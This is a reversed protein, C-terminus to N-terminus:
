RSSARHLRSKLDSLAAADAEGQARDVLERLRTTLDTIEKRFADDPQNGPGTKDLRTSLPEEVAIAQHLLALIRKRGADLRGQSRALNQMQKLKSQELEWTARRALEDSRAKEIGSRLELENKHKEYELLVKLKSQANELSYRAMKQKFVASTEAAELQWEAALDAASGTSVQKIKAYHERAPRIARDAAELDAKASEVETECSKQERKFIGDSYEKLAIEAAQRALVAKDYGAKAAAVMITQSAVDGETPDDIVLGDLVQAGLAALQEHM